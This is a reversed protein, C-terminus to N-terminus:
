PRGGRETWQRQLFSTAAEVVAFSRLESGKTQTEIDKLVIATAAEILVVLLADPPQSHSDKM